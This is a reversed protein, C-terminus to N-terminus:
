IMTSIKQFVHKVIKNIIEERSGTLNLEDVFLEKYYFGIFVRGLPEKEDGKTPGANGTVSVSIDSSTINKLCKVMEEAVEYSVVGYKKITNSSVGLMKEKYEISYTVFSGKFIKSVGPIKTLTSALAGGTCSEAFSISINKNILENIIKKFMHM